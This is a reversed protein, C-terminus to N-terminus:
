SVVLPSLRERLADAGNALGPPVLADVIAPAPADLWAKLRGAAHAEGHVIELETAAAVV